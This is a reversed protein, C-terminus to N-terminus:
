KTNNAKSARKSKNSAKDRGNTPKGGSDGSLNSTTSDDCVSHLDVNVNDEKENIENEFSDTVNVEDEFEDTEQKPMTNGLVVPIDIKRLIAIGRQHWRKAVPASVVTTDGPLLNEGYFSTQVKMKVKVDSM